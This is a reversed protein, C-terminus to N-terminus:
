IPSVYKKENFFHKVDNHMNYHLLVKFYFERQGQKNKYKETDLVYLVNMMM